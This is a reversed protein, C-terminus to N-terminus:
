ARAGARDLAQDFEEAYGKILGAKDLGNIIRRAQHYNVMQGKEPDGIDNELAKGTFMGYFMIVAAYGDDKVADPDETFDPSEPYFSNVIATMEQHNRRGTLQVYGRGRFKYGDGPQDNGLDKRDEYRDCYSRSGYETIRQMCHATQHFTTALTDAVWGVVRIDWNTEFVGTPQLQPSEWFNLIAEMGDVQEQSLKGGSIDSRVDDYFAARNM